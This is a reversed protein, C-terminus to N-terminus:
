IFTKGSLLTFSMLEIQTSFFNSGSFLFLVSLFIGVAEFDGSVATFSETAGAARETFGVFFVVFGTFVETFDEVVGEFLEFGGPVALKDCFVTGTEAGAFVVRDTVVGFFVVATVPM